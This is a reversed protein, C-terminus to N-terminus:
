PQDGERGSLWEDIVQNSLRWHRSVKQGPLRGDQAIKYLSSKSPQLYSAFDDINMMEPTLLKKFHAEQNHPAM